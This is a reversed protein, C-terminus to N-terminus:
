ALHVTPWRPRHTCGRHPKKHHHFALLHAPDCPNEHLGETDVAAAVGAHLLHPAHFNYNHIGGSPHELSDTTGHDQYLPPRHCTPPPPPPRHQAAGGRAMAKPHNPVTPSPHYRPPPELRFTLHHSHRRMASHRHIPSAPHTLSYAMRNMVHPHSPGMRYNPSNGHNTPTM